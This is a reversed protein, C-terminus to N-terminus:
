VVHVHDPAGIAIQPNLFSQIPFSLGGSVVTSLVSGIGQVRVVNVFLQPFFVSQGGNGFFIADHYRTKPVTHFTQSQHMGHHRGFMDFLDVLLTKGFLYSRRVHQPRLRDQM